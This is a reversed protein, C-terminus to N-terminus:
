SSRIILFDQSAFIDMAVEGNPFDLFGKLGSKWRRRIIMSSEWVGEDKCVEIEITASEKDAESAFPISISIGRGTEDGGLKVISFTM